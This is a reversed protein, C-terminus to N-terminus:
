PKTVGSLSAPAPPPNPDNGDRYPIVGHTTRRKIKWQRNERVFDDIYRGALAVVPRNDSSATFFLYRSRAKATDGHVEVVATTMLHFNSKNIFGEEPKGLNKELMAQIAAPGQASGFGGTWVGDSAFLSAYGAYDRADLYEGYRVIVERIAKEDELQQVRQQLAAVASENSSACASLILAIGLLATLRISTM